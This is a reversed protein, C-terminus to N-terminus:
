MDNDDLATDLDEFRNTRDCGIDRAQPDWESQHEIPEVDTDGAMSPTFGFGRRAAQLLLTFADASNPSKGAHRSKYEKKSEVHSKKGIMRFLRDTLEPLNQAENFCPAVVSLLRRM